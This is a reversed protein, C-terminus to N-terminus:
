VAQAKDIKKIFFDMNTAIFVACYVTILIGFLVNFIIAFGARDLHNLFIGFIVMMFIMVIGWIVWKAISVPKVPIMELVDKLPTLRLPESAYREALTLYRAQSRCKKCTLFHISVPLPIREYKDLALFIDMNKECLENKM